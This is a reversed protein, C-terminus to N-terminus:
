VSFAPAFTKASAGNTISDSAVVSGADLADLHIVIRGWPGNEYYGIDVSASNAPADLDMTVQVLAGISLNLQGVGLTLMQAFAVVLVVCFSRLMVYLNFETLFAPSVLSLVVLGALISAGLASWEKAMLHRAVTM